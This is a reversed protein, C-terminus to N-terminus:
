VYEDLPCFDSIAREKFDYFCDEYNYDYIKKNLESCWINEGDEFNHYFYPCKSNCWHLKIKKM